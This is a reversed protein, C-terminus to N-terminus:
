IGATKSARAGLQVCTHQGAHHLHATLPAERVRDQLSAIVDAQLQLKEVLTELMVQLPTQIFLPQLRSVTAM